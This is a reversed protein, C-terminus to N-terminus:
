LLWRGNGTGKGILFGNVSTKSQADLVSGLSTATQLQQARQVCAARPRNTINVAVTASAAAYQVTVVNPTEPRHALRSATAQAINMKQKSRSITPPNSLAVASIRGSSASTM